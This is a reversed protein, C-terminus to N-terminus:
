MKVGTPTVGGVSRDQDARAGTGHPHQALVRHFTSASDFSAAARTPKMVGHGGYPGRSVPPGTSTSPGTTSAM